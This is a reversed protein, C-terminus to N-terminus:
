KNKDELDKLLINIRAVSDAIRQTREETTAPKINYKKMVKDNDLSDRYEQANVKIKKKKEQWDKISVLNNM